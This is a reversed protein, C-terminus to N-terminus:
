KKNKLRSAFYLFEIFIDFFLFSSFYTTTPIFAHLPSFFPHRILDDIKVDNSIAVSNINVEGIKMEVADASSIGSKIIWSM